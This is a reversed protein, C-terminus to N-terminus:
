SMARPMGFTGTTEMSLADMREILGAAATAADTLGNGGTMNTRVYGPHLLAVAIGRPGLDHSLNVGAMNAAAKSMRYGYNGGSSNDDLSGVRSTVIGVKAGAGLNGNLAHTVRLPGLANVDYQAQMRAYDLDDFSESTLIGANNILMDLPRNGVVQALAAVSADDAVDVNEIIECGVAQLEESPKRCTALVADGRAVYQRALELGIGQNTGTILVRAM